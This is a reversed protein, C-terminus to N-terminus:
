CGCIRADEGAVDGVDEVGEVVLADLLREELAPIEILLGDVFPV